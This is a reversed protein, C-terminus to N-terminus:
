QAIPVCSLGHSLQCLYAARQDNHCSRPQHVIHHTHKHTNTHIHPHTNSLRKTQFVHLHHGGPLVQIKSHIQCPHHEVQHTPADKRQNHKSTICVHAGDPPNTCREEARTTFFHVRACWRTPQHMKERSTNHLLACMRVMQHTPAGKRQEHQLTICVHAGDPPNTCRKEARTTFYHVRACWRTPQHMKGRSTNHFLICVHASDSPDTCMNVSYADETSEHLSPPFHM